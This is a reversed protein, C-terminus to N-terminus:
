RHAQGFLSLTFILGSFIANACVCVYRQAYQVAGEQEVPSHVFTYDDVIRQGRADDRKKGKIADQEIRRRRLVLDQFAVLVRLDGPFEQAILDLLFTGRCHVRDGVDNSSEEEGDDSPGL